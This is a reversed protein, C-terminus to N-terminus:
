ASSFWGVRSSSFSRVLSPGARVESGWGWSWSGWSWWSGSWWGLLRVRLGPLVWVRLASGQGKARSPGWGWDQGRIGLGLLGMIRLRSGIRLRWPGLGEAGSPVMIRLGSGQSEARVDLGWGWFFGSRLEWRVRERSPVWSIQILRLRPHQVKAGNGVWCGLGLRAVVLGQLGLEWGGQLVMGLGVQDPSQVQVGEDGLGWQWAWVRRPGVWSVPVSGAGLCAGHASFKESPNAGPFQRHGWGLGEQEVPLAWLSEWTVWWCGGVWPKEVESRGLVVPVLAQSNEPCWPPHLLEGGWGGSAPTWWHSSWMNRSM